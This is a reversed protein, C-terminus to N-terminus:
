IGATLQVWLVNPQLLVGQGASNKFPETQQTFQYNFSLRLTQVTIPYWNVGLTLRWRSPANHADDYSTPPTYGKTEASDGGLFSKPASNPNVYDARLLGELSGGREPIISTPLAYQAQFHAGNAINPPLTNGNGRCGKETDYGLANGFGQSPGIYMWVFSASAYLGQYRFEADATFGRNWNHETDCYSLGGGAVSVRPTANRAVDSEAARGKPVGLIHLQLRLAFELASDPNSAINPGSGNFAGVAYEFVPTTGAPDGVLGTFMLGIDRPALYPLFLRSGYQPIYLQRDIFSINSEGFQFTQLFPMLFQGARVTFAPHIRSEVYADALQPQVLTEVEFATFFYKSLQMKLNIRARQLYFGSDGNNPGIAATAAEDLPRLVLGPQVFGGLEVYQAADPNDGNREWVRVGARAPLAAAFVGITLLLANLRPM